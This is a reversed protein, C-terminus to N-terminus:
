KHLNRELIVNREVVETVVTLDGTAPACVLDVHVAFEHHHVIEVDENARGVDVIATKHTM